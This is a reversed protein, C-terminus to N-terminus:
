SNEVRDNVQDSCENPEGEPLPTDFRGDPNYFSRPACQAEPPMVGRPFLEYGNSKHISHRLQIRKMTNEYFAKYGEPTSPKIADSFTDIDDLMQWLEASETTVCGAATYTVRKEEGEVNGELDYHQRALEVNIPMGRFSRQGGSMTSVITVYKVPIDQMAMGEFQPLDDAVVVEPILSGKCAEEYTKDTM